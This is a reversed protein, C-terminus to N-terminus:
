KRDLWERYQAWDAAIARQRRAPDAASPSIKSLYAPYEACSLVDRYDANATALAARLKQGDGNALKLVALRVRPIERHWSQGGYEELAGLVGAVERAPYNRRVVREVDTLSVAPVPQDPLPPPRPAM